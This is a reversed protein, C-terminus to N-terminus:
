TLKVNYILFLSCTVYSLYNLFCVYILNLVYLYGKFLYKIVIIKQDSSAQPQGFVFNYRLNEWTFNGMWPRQKALM